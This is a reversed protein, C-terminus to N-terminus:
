NYISNYNSPQQNDLIESKKKKHVINKISQYKINFLKAIQKLTYQQRLNDIQSIQYDTLLTNYPIQKCYARKGYKFAHIANEKPTVWELNEVSNNARNSDKHNVLPKNEPNPIFAKAVLRHVFVQSYTKADPTLKINTKCYGDKDKWFDSQIVNKKRQGHALKKLRGKSSILFYPNHEMPKWLEITNDM